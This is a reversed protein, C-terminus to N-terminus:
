YTHPRVPDFSELLRSMRNLRAMHQRHCLLVVGGLIFIAGLSLGLQDKPLHKQITRARDVVLRGFRAPARTVLDLKSQKRLKM